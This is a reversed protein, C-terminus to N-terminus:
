NTLRSPTAFQRLRERRGPAGVVLSEVGAECVAAAAYGDWASPGDPEEGLVISAIWAQLENLYATGFRSQFNPPIALSEAHTPRAAVRDGAAAARAHRGGGRDRLPHRLRLGRVRVGRRRRDPRGRDRAPHAASRAPGRSRAFHARPSLVTVRTIEEGLLWRTIDIEHVATDTIIMASDFFSHVSPNRHASHVLLPAGIQGADLRAKLDAYGPDYRRMFGVTVLRRGTAAEAEVIRLAAAASVALPKECLVPKGAKLCALTFPEHTAAPSAVVVADVAPDAILELGDAHTMPVGLEEAVRAASEPLADSIAVVDAGSVATALLRAHTSGMLGAGIVGVNVM